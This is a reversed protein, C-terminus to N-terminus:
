AYGRTLVIWNGDGTKVLIWSWYYLEDAEWAGGGAVPSRFVSDFVACATYREDPALGKNAEELEQRSREDGAYKLSYLTCGALEAFDAKVVAVAQELEEAPYIGSAGLDVAVGRSAVCGNALVLGAFAMACLLYSFERMTM